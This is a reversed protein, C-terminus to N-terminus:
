KGQSSPRGSLGPRQGNVAKHKQPCREAEQRESSRPSRTMGYREISVLTARPSDFDRANISNTLVFTDM